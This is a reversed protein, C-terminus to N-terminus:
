EVEFLVSTQEIQQRPDKTPKYYEWENQYGLCACIFRTDGETFQRRYHVHGCIAVKARTALESLETSGLFANFYNWNRRTSDQVTFGRHNVGHTLLVIDKDAAADMLARIDANQERCIEPDSKPFQIFLRDQWVMEDLERRAFDELTFEPSGFSYDYWASHGVLVTKETLSTSRGWLCLEDDAYADIIKQTSLGNEKNWLDHNGPVYLVPLSKNVDWVFEQTTQVDNSVDGGILLLDANYYRGLGVVIDRFAFHQDKTLHLDSLTLIKKKM